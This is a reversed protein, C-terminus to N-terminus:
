EDQEIQREVADAGVSRMFRGFDEMKCTIKVWFLVRDATTGEISASVNPLYSREESRSAREVACDAEEKTMLEYTTIQTKYM